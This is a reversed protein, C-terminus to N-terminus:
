EDEYRSTLNDTRGEVGNEGEVPSVGERQGFDGYLPVCLAYLLMHRRLMGGLRMQLGESMGPIRKERAGRRESRAYSFCGRM